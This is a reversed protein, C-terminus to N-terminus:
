LEGRYKIEAQLRQRSEGTLEGEWGYRLDFYHVPEDGGAYKEYDVALDFGTGTVPDKVPDLLQLIEEYVEDASYFGHQPPFGTLDRVFFEESTDHEDLLRKFEGYALEDEREKERGALRNVIHRFLKRIEMLGADAVAMSEM